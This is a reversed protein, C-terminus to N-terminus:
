QDVDFAYEVPIFHEGPLEGDGASDKRAGQMDKHYGSTGKPM